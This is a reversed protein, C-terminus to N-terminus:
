TTILQNQNRHMRYKADQDTQLRYGSKPCSMVTDGGHRSAKAGGFRQPNSLSPAAVFIITHRRKQTPPTNRVPRRGQERHQDTSPVFSLTSPVASQNYYCDEARCNGWNEQRRSAQHHDVWINQICSKCVDGLGSNVDQLISDPHFVPNHINHEHILLKTSLKGYVVSPAVRLNCFTVSGASVLSYVINSHM